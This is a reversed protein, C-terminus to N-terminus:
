PNSPLHEHFLVELSAGVWFAYCTDAKKNCRGNFGVWQTGRTTPEMSPVQAASTKPKTFDHIGMMKMKAELQPDEDEDDDSESALEEYASQRSVLWSITGPINSLGDSLQPAKSSTGKDATLASGLLSLAAIACYTYGAHAEHHSSESFGWDYTQSARIYDILKEVNIDKWPMMDTQDVGGDLMFRIGAACYCLRMDKGGKIDDNADLIEGFGGDDRQLRSLWDLCKRRDVRRLGGVFSLNLIAFYTIQITAPDMQCEGNSYFQEPYVHNPSGVFGGNPHQCKLIWEQIDKLQLESFTDAGAHLLDLASLIFFGLAMRSSDTTTYDTPLYTKLCRQWYRIHQATDLPLEEYMDAM